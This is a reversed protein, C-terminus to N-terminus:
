PTWCGSSKLALVGRDACSSRVSDVLLLVVSLEMLRWYHHDTKGVDDVYGVDGDEGDDESGGDDVGKTRACGHVGREVVM